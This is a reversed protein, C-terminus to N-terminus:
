IHKPTYTSKAIYEHLVQYKQLNNRYQRDCKKLILWEDSQQYVSEVAFLGTPSITVVM